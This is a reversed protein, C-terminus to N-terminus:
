KGLKVLEAYNQLAQEPTLDINVNSNQQTLSVPQGNAGTLEVRTTAGWEGKRELVFKGAVVDGNKAANLMAQGVTALSLTRAKEMELDIESNARRLEIFQEVTLGIAGAIQGTNMQAASMQKILELVKADYNIIKLPRGMKRKFTM